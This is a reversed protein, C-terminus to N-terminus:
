PRRFTTRLIPARMRQMHTWARTAGSPHERLECEKRHSNGRKGSSISNQAILPRAPRFPGLPARWITAVLATMGLRNQNVLGAARDGNFCRDLCAPVIRHGCEPSFLTGSTLTVSNAGARVASERRPSIKPRAPPRLELGAGGGGRRNCLSPGDFLM